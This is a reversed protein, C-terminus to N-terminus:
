FGRAFMGWFTDGLERWKDITSRAFDNTYKTLFERAKIGALQDSDESDFLQLAKKEIMPLEIFAQDEFEAVAAEIHKRTAGWKVTALRNARRFAWSASDARFRHQSGIEFSKPLSLTGAFIPIRPSLAPNDFSFWAVAGIEDPLWGRCQIIQSYSCAAIAITRRREVAGPKLANLLAMTDRSMWPNAVPSKIMEPKENEARQEGRRRPKPVMLNQTMDYDTGEYTERYYKMVDRVSMKKYPKVSFPLEAMERNLNLSPALTSLIYFERDSYPKRGSYAKWFKFPEGSSPDWWEMEEALSFVNDSAMYNDPDDLNLESIRPINASVGVQDDPIRVAAWVAGVEMPGAGFIEFQWVEKTDAITICEGNDGFGHEKVLKGILRIADRANTCRELAIRELEEILFLGDDNRLERRGGITTEGIALQKENLCPYAVNMWAYTEEIQPIEGKLIKGRLDWATETHLTGWYVKNTSGKKHKQRPVINLWTRYNGDCTHCTIVSGDTTASRGVMISTCSGVEQGFDQNNQQASLSFLGTTLALIAVFAVLRM